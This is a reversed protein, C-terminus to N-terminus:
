WGGVGDVVLQRCSFAVRRDVNSTVLLVNVYLDTESEAEIELWIM